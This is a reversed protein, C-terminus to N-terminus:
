NFLKLYSPSTIVDDDDILVGSQKTTYGNSFKVISNQVTTELVNRLGHKNDIVINNCHIDFIKINAQSESDTHHHYNLDVFGDNQYIKLRKETTNYYILGQKTDTPHSAYSKVGAYISDSIINSCNIDTGGTISVNSKKVTENDVYVPITNPTATTEATKLIFKSNMKTNTGDYTIKQTKNQLATVNSYLNSLFGEDSKLDSCLLTDNSFDPSQNTTTGGGGGGGTNTTTNSTFLGGSSTLGSGFLSM